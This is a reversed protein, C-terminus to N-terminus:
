YIQWYGDLWMQKYFRRTARGRGTRLSQKIWTIPSAEFFINKSQCSSIPPCPDRTFMPRLLTPMRQELQNSSAIASGFPYVLVLTSEITLLATATMCRPLVADQRAPRDTLMTRSPWDVHSALLRYNPGGFDVKPPFQPRKYHSRYVVTRGSHFLYSCCQNHTTKWLSLWVWQYIVRYNHAAMMPTVHSHVM